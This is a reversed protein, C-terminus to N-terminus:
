SNEAKYNDVMLKSTDYDMELRRQIFSASIRGHERMLQVAKNYKPHEKVNRPTVEEVEEPIVKTKDIAVANILAKTEMDSIFAGHIREPKEMGTMKLLMDGNGLLKECGMSDMIIKADTHSAVKFGIRSPLNSKILGTIVSKDPRQTTLILHIGVARAKQAIRVIHAEVEKGTTMMLDALEDIVVVIYPMKGHKENYSDINRVCFESLLRYRSEMEEVAWKLADVAKDPETIVDGIVHPINEYPKLEVMKPDILLLQVEEPKKYLIISSIFANVGVSKGSGTQGAILLHPAKTLDMARYKGSVTKGVILPIKMGSVDTHELMDKIYVTHPAKNPIEVGITNKGPIPTLIRISKAQLAIALDNALNAVEQAKVGKALKIEYQTIVPGPHVDVVKGDVGFNTLQAELMDRKHNINDLDIEQAPYAPLLSKFDIM